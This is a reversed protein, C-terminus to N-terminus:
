EAALVGLAGKSHRVDPLLRSSVRDLEADAKAPDELMLKTLRGVSASPSLDTQATPLQNGIPGKPPETRNYRLHGSWLAAGAVLVISAALAWPRRIWIVKEEPMALPKPPKPQFQRLFNEFREDDNPQMNM